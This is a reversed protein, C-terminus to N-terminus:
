ARVLKGLMGTIHERAGFRKEIMDLYELRSFYHQWAQDRFNLIESGKLHPTDLPMFQPSYQAYHEWRDPLKIGVKLCDDYWQSGPYPFACYFNVWEFNLEVALALRAAMQERTDDPLGFMFNAIINIGADDCLTKTRRASETTYKDDFGFALWDIGAQKMTHLLNGDVTDERAYAWIHFGLDKIGNCVAAVHQRNMAFLEDAFKINKVGRSALYELEVIVESPPRMQYPRSYMAHINCYHCKFPCGFSTYVVAYPSREDLRALCHWNHARYKTLDLMDWGAKMNDVIPARVLLLDLTCGMEQITRDPLASPHLGGLVRVIGPMDSCLAQLLTKAAGMKPTSSVSPNSGMAMIVVSTPHYTEIRALIDFLSLGEADADILVVDHHSAFGGALMVAWYPPEIAAWQSLNGYSERRANPNVVAIRERKNM